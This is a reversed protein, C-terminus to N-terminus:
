PVTQLASTNEDVPPPNTIPNITPPQNVPLVTVTFTQTFTNVGGNATSGDDTVTVAIVATGSELPALTYNLTGTTNNPSYGTVENLISTSGDPNTVTVPTTSLSAIIAPNTSPAQGPRDPARREGHRDLEAFRGPGRHHGDPQDDAALAPHDHALQRVRHLSRPQPDRDPDTGPRGARGDRGPHGTRSVDGRSDTVTVTITSMGTEFPTPQFTISGYTNPSTYTLTPTPILGPTDNVGTGSAVTVKLNQLQGGGATIGSLPITVAPSNELITISPPSIPNLTPPINVQSVTIMKVASDTSNTGAGDDVTFEITRTLTSPTDINTDQYLVAEAAEQFIM